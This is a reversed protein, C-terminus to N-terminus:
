RRGRGRHWEIGAQVRYSEATLGRNHTTVNGIREDNFEGSSWHAALSAAFEPRVYWAVGAGVTFVEGALAYMQPAGGTYLTADLDRIGGGAQAFPVVAMRGVPWVAPTFRLMIDGHSMLYKGGGPVRVDTVPVDMVLAWRDSFGWGFRLSLGSGGRSDGATVSDGAIWAYAVPDFGIFFGERIALQPPPNYPPIPAPAQAGARGLILGLAIPAVLLFRRM